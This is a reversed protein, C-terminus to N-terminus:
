LDTKKWKRRLRLDLRRNCLAVDDGVTVVIQDLYFTIGKARSEYFVERHKWTPTWGELRSRHLCM